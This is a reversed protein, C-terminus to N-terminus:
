GKPLNQQSVAPPLSKMAKNNTTNYSVISASFFLAQTLVKHLITREQGPVLAPDVFYQDSRFGVPLSFISPHM